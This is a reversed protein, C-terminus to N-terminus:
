RLTSMSAPNVLADTAPDYPVADTGGGGGGGSPPGGCASVLALAVLAALTSPIARMSPEQSHLGPTYGAANVLTVRGLPEARRYGRRLATAFPVAGLAAM